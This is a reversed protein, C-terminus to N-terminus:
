IVTAPPPMRREAILDDLRQLPWWQPLQRAYGIGPHSGSGAAAGVRVQVRM